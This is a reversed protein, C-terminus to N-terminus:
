APEFVHASQTELSVPFPVPRIQKCAPEAFAVPSDQVPLKEKFSTYTM